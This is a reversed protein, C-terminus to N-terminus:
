QTIWAAAALQQLAHISRKPTHARQTAVYQMCPAGTVIIDTFCPTQTVPLVAGVEDSPVFMTGNYGALTGNLKAAKVATLYIGSGEMVSIISEPTAAAAGLTINMGAVTCANATLMNVRRAHAGIILQKQACLLM